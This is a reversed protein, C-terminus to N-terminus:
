SKAELTHDKIFKDVAEQTPLSKISNIIHYISAPPINLQKSIQWRNVKDISYKRWILEYDWKLYGRNEPHVEFGYHKATWIGFCRRSCYYGTHPQGKSLIQEQNRIFLKGCVDCVLSVRRNEGLCKLCYGSLNNKKIQTGCGNCYYTQVTRKTQLNAQALIQRIRERSVGFKLAIAQGTLCPNNKRYEIIEMSKITPKSSSNKEEHQCNDCNKRRNNSPIFYECLKGFIINLNKFKM